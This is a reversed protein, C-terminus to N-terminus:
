RYCYNVNILLQRLAHIVKSLVVVQLTSAVIRCLFCSLCPTYFESFNVCAILLLGCYSDMPDPKLVKFV